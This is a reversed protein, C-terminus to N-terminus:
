LVIEMENLNYPESSGFGEWFRIFLAFVGAATPSFLYSYGGEADAKLYISCGRTDNNDRVVDVLM